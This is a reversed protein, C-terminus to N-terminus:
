LTVIRVFACNQAMQVDMRRKITQSFPYLTECPWVIAQRAWDFPTGHLVLSASPSASGIAFPSSFPETKMFMRRQLFAANSLM